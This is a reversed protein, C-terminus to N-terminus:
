ALSGNWSTYRHIIRAVPLPHRALFASFNAWVLLRGRTRCELGQAMDRRSPLSVGSAASHKGHAM